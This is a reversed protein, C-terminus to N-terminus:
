KYPYLGHCVSRVVKQEDHCVLLTSVVETAVAIRHEGRWMEVANRGTPYAELAKVHGIGHAHGITGGQHGATQGTIVTYAM